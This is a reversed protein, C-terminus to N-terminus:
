SCVFTNNLDLRNCRKVSGLGDMCTKREEGESDKTEVQEADVSGHDDQDDRSLLRSNEGWCNGRLM